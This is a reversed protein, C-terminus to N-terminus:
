DQFSLRILYIGKDDKGWILRIAVHDKTEEDEDGEILELGTSDDEYLEKLTKDMRGAYFTAFPEAPSYVIEM